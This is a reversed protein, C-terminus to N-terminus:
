RESGMGVSGKLVFRGTEKDSDLSMAKSELPRSTKEGDAMSGVFAILSDVPLHRM